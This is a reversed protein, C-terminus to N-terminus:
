NIAGSGRQASALRYYSIALSSRLNTRNLSLTQGQQVCGAVSPTLAKIAALEGASDVPADLVARAGRPEARVVCEGVRLIYNYALDLNYLREAAQAKEASLGKGTKPDSTRLQPEAWILPAINAPALDFGAAFDERILRDALAGRYHETPMRLRGGRFGLCKGGALKEFKEEPMWENTSKLAFERAIDAHYDVVCDAFEHMVKRAHAAKKADDNKALAPATVFLAASLLATARLFPKRM